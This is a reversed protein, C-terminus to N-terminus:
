LCVSDGGEKNFFAVDFVNEDFALTEYCHWHQLKDWEIPYNFLSKVGNGYRMSIKVSHMTLGHLNNLIEMKEPITSAIIIHTAEKTFSLQDYACTKVTIAKLFGFRELVKEAYASAESDIDIGVVMAGTKRYFWMPTMPFAGIGILLVKSQRNIGLKELEMEICGEVNSFYHTLENEEGSLTTARYKEMQWVNHAASLRVADLLTGNETNLDEMFTEYLQKNQPSLVFETYSELAEEMEKSVSEGNIFAANLGEFTRHFAKLSAVFREKREEKM